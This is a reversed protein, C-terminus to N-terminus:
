FDSFSNRNNPLLHKYKHWMKIDFHDSHDTTNEAKANLPTNKESRKDKRIVKQNDSLFEVKRPAKKISSLLARNTERIFRVQPVTADSEKLIKNILMYKQNHSPNFTDDPTMLMPVWGCARLAVMVSAGFTNSGEKNRMSNGSPDYYVRINRNRHTAFFSSVKDILDAEDMPAYVEFAALYLEINGQQQSVACSCMDGFDIEIEIPLDPNCNLILNSTIPWDGIGKDDIEESWDGDIVHIKERFRAYFKNSVEDSKINLFSTKFIEPKGQSLFLAANQTVYDEGLVSMNGLASSGDVFVSGSHGGGVLPRGLRLKDLKSQKQGLEQEIYGIREKIRESEDFSETEELEIQAEMLRMKVKEVSLSVLAILAIQERNQMSIYADLWKADDDEFPMDTTITMSKVHPNNPWYTTRGRIAPFLDQQMREANLFRAEDIGVHGTISLSNVMGPRDNSGLVYICGTRTSVTNKYTLPVFGHPRPWHSPPEVNKVWDRNEIWGLSKWGDMIASVMRLQLGILTPGYWVNVSQPVSEAIRKARIAHIHSSKGEGRSAIEVLIRPHILYAREQLRTLYKENKM